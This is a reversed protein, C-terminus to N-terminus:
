NEQFYQPVILVSKKKNLSDSVAVINLFSIQFYENNKTTRCSIVCMEDTNIDILFLFQYANKFATRPPRIDCEGELRREFGDRGGKEM